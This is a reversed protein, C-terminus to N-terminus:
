LELFKLHDLTGYAAQVYATDSFLDTSLDASLVGYALGFFIDASSLGASQKLNQTLWKEQREMAREIKHNAAEAYRRQGVSLAKKVNELNSIFVPTFREETLTLFSKGHAALIREARGHKEAHKGVFASPKSELVGVQGDVRQYVSDATYSAVTRGDKKPLDHKSTVLTENDLDVCVSQDAIKELGTHVSLMLLHNRELFSEGAVFGCPNRETPVIYAKRGRKIRKGVDRVPRTASSRAPM